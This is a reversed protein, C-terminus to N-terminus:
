LSDWSNNNDSQRSPQNISSEVSGAHNYTIRMQPQRGPSGRAQVRLSGICSARLRWCPKLMCPHIGTSSQQARAGSKNAAQGQATNHGKQHPLDFARKPYFPFDAADLYEGTLNGGAGAKATLLRERVMTM